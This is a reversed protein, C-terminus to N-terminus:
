IWSSSGFYRIKLVWKFIIRRYMEIKWTTVKRLTDGCQKVSNFAWM